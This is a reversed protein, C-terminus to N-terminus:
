VLHGRSQLESTHEESRVGAELQVWRRSVGGGGTARHRIMVCACGWAKASKWGRVRSPRASQLRRLMSLALRAPRAPSVTGRNSLDSSCVDSSWDRPWRT